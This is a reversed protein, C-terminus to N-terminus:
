NNYKPEQQESSRTLAVQAAAIDALLFSIDKLFQASMAAVTPGTSGSVQNIEGIRPM